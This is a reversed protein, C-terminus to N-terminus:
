IGYRGRLANFNQSIESETLVKNYYVRVLAINGNMFETASNSSRRGIHYDTIANSSLLQVTTGQSVGNVYGTTISPSVTITLYYWVGTSLTQPASFAYDNGSNRYRLNAGVIVMGYSFSVGSRGVTFISKTGSVNNLKLIAEISVSSGVAPVPIQGNVYTDTGDFQFSGNNNANFTPNNVLAGNRTNGSIDYWTTGTEPYSKINAADLYCALGNTVIKPNYNIGM